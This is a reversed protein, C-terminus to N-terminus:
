QTQPPTSSSHRSTSAEPPDTVPRSFPATHPMAVANVPSKTLKPPVTCVANRLEVHLTEPLSSQELVISPAACHGQWTIIAKM